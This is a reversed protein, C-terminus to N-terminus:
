WRQNNRRITTTLKDMVIDALENASVNGGNVTMNVVTGQSANRIMDYLSNAGIIVEAGAEGAGLLKGNSAGFITPQDLIMGNKMAKSYWEVEIKPLGLPGTNGSNFFHPLEIKPLEWKFKFMDKLAQVGNSVTNKIGTWTDSVKNKIGDWINTFTSKIANWDSSWKNKFENLKGKITDWNQYLKVGIAIVAAIAAVVLGAPSTFFAFAASLGQVISTVKSFLGAVPSIAAVLGAIVLIIKQTDGDLSAFWQVVKTVADVLREFAPVLSKALSAGMQLFAQRTRGKVKDIADQMQNADDVVDQSMILGLSEAEDGLERLAQGGDDVVGAMEMASKGFLEMSLADRETESEVKGLAELSEYWVENASRLSGDANTIEVGLKAFAKNGSSMQKTMKMISGTMQEMSVDVVDSAYQMKQLEEVTFGTKQALANLDDAAGAAAVANGVMAGAIGAAAGSLAKTKEAVEASKVAFTELVPHCKKLQDEYDELSQETAIIERKLANQQEITKDADPASEMQKLANNLEELRKKSDNVAQGLLTQKQRLLETNGPDLKLLKNVDKLQTETNKLASDVQKLSKQLDTTDGGIEITIGKIRSAM